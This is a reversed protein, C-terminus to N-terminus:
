SGGLGAKVMERVWLVSDEINAERAPKLWGMVSKDFTGVAMDFYPGWSKPVM